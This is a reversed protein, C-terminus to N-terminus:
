EGVINIGKVKNFDKDFTAINLINENKMLSITICDTFSFRTNKQNKFIEWGDEFIKEDIKVLDASNMLNEGAVITKHLNKTRGFTVTITEDFIYDSIVPNGFEGKIIKDRIKIAREHHEDTEVEVSVLFSSDLFIM